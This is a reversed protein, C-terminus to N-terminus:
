SAHDEPYPLGCLTPLDGKGTQLRAEWAQQQKPLTEILLCNRRDRAAHTAAVNYFYQDPGCTVMVARDAAMILADLSPGHFADPGLADFLDDGLIVIWPAREPLPHEHQGQHVLLLSCAFDRVTEFLPKLHRSERWVGNNKLAARAQKRNISIAAPLICIWATGEQAFPQSEGENENKMYNKKRSDIKSSHDNSSRILAPIKATV